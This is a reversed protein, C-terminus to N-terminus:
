TRTMNGENECSGSVSLYMYAPNRLDDALTVSMGFAVLREDSPGRDGPNAGPFPVEDGPRRFSLGIRGGTTSGGAALAVVHTHVIQLKELGTGDLKSGEVAFACVGSGGHKDQPM